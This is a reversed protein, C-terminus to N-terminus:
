GVKALSHTGLPLSFRFTTGKNIRSEVKLSGKSKEIFEKCLLLGLGTGKENNTGLTSHFNGSSFLRQCQEETMGIGSDTVCIWVYNGALESWITITGFDPTFKIANSILNRLVLQFMNSDGLAHLCDDVINLMKQNKSKIQAHYLQTCETIFQALQLRENKFNMGDMQISSWSLLNDLLQRNVQITQKLPTMISKIERCNVYDSSALDVIGQLSNFPSRLDHSIISFLKNKVLNAELLQSTRQEVLKELNSSLKEVTNLASSFRSSVTMSFLALFIVVGITGFNPMAEHEIHIVEKFQLIEFLTFSAQIVMGTLIIGAGLRKNWYAKISVLVVFILALMIGVNFVNLLIDYNRIPFVLFAFSLWGGFLQFTLIHKKNAENPFLSQIFMPSLIINLSILFIEIRKIFLFGADPFIQFILLSGDYVSIARFLVTFSSIALIFFSYGRKLQFHMILNFGVMLLLMGILAMEFNEFRRDHEQVVETKGIEMRYNIGGNFSHFNSAQVILVITDVNPIQIYSNLRQATSTEPSVGIKGQEEVLRDNVWIRCSSSISTFKLLLNEIRSSNIITLRYTAYGTKPLRAGLISYSSWDSPVMALIHPYSQIKFSDPTLLKGWYFEWEGRIANVKEYFDQLSDLHLEGNKYHYPKEKAGVQWWCCLLMICVVLRM